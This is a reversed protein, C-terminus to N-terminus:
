RRNQKLAELAQLALPYGPSIALAQEFLRLAPASRGMAEESMGLRTLAQPERPNLQLAFQFCEASASFRGITYLSRGALLYVTPDDASMAVAEAALREAEAAYGSQAYSLSLLSRVLASSSDLRFAEELYPVAERARDRELLAAGLYRRADVQAQDIAAANKLVSIASDLQRSMLYAFGLRALSEGDARLLAVQKIYPLALDPRRQDLLVDGLAQTASANGPHIRLANQFLAEADAFRREAAAIKGALVWAPIYMSDVAIAQKLASDATASKPPDARLAASALNHYARANNPTKEIGDRWRAPLDAYLASRQFTAGVLAIGVLAILTSRLPRVPSFVLCWAAFAAALGVGLRLSVRAASNLPALHDSTWGSKAFYFAAVATLVGVKAAPSMAWAAAGTSANAASRRRQEVAVVVLVVVAAIALYVRREAAIEQYLPVVSSSPGLLLFFWAGLFGLWQWRPRRWAQVTAAAAIALAVLGPIGILGGIPHRGYDFTLPDPWFLLGVYHPIAWGQSYFYEYWQLGGVGGIANQWSSTAILVASLTSTALLIAYLRRRAPRGWLIKWEDALFARDYLMVMLPATIMVEKSGMGLISSVVAAVSWSLVRRATSRGDPEESNGAHWACIAAYLTALYCASVLLETRQTLYNVAETQLPHVLWIGAVVLAIRGAADRSQEPVRGFRITQWIIAALLLASVVHLALNVIHYGITENPAKVAPSQAIGLWRNFAYNLAFSYNATPRGSMPSGIKPPSLARDLPWVQRITTNNAIADFDDFDFPARLAPGYALLAVAV